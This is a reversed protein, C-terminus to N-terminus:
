EQPEVDPRDKPLVEAGVRGLLVHQYTKGNKPGKKIKKSDQSFSGYFLHKSSCICVGLSVLPSVWGEGPWPNIWSSPSFPKHPPPHSVQVVPPPTAIGIVMWTGLLGSMCAPHRLLVGDRDPGALKGDLLSSASVFPCSWSIRLVRAHTLRDSELTRIVGFNCVTSVVSEGALLPELYVLGSGLVRLVPPDQRLEKPPEKKKKLEPAKEQPCPWSPLHSDLSPRM